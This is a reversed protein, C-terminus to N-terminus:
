AQCRQTDYEVASVLWAGEVFQFTYQEIHHKRTPGRRGGADVVVLDWEEETCATVTAGDVATSILRFSRPTWEETRGRARLDALLSREEELWAGTAVGELAALDGRQHAIRFADNTRSIAALMEARSLPAPQFVGQIGPLAIWGSLSHISPWVIVGVILLLLLGLRLWHPRMGEIITESGGYSSDHNFM